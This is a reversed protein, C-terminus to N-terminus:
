LPCWVNRRQSFYSSSSFTLLSFSFLFHIISQPFPIFFFQFSSIFFILFFFSLYHSFTFLYLYFLIFFFSFLSSSLSLRTTQNWSDLLSRTLMFNLEYPPHLLYSYFIVSPFDSIFSLLLWILLTHFTVFIYYSLNFKRKKMESIKSLFVFTEGKKTLEKKRNKIVTYIM